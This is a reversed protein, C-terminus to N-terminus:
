EDVKKHRHSRLMAIMQYMQSSMISHELKLAKTHERVVSLQRKAAGEDIPKQSQEALLDLANFHAVLQDHYRLTDLFAKFLSNAKVIQLRLADNSVEGLMQTNRNYVCFYESGQPYSKLFAEDQELTELAKGIKTQFTEFVVKSEVHLAHLYGDVAAQQNEIEQQHQRDISERALKRISHNAIFAGVVVSVLALLSVSALTLVEGSSEASFWGNVTNLSDQWINAVDM